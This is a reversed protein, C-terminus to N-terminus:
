IDLLGSIMMILCSLVFTGPGLKQIKCLFLKILSVPVTMLRIIVNQDIVSLMYSLPGM